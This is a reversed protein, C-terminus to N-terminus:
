TRTRFPGRGGESGTELSKSEGGGVHGREPEGM